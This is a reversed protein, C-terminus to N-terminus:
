PAVSVHLTGDKIEYALGAPDLAKHLLTDLDVDKVEFTVLKNLGPLAEQDYTFKLDNRQAVTKAIAGAKQQQINLSYVRKAGTTAPRTRVTKGQVLRAIATHDAQPGAVELMAGAARLKSSPFKAQLERVWQEADGTVRYSKTLVASDPLPIFRIADGAPSFEFTANFGALVICLQESCSLPPLTIAPWLDHPIQELGVVKLEYDKAIASVIQQPTALIEWSRSKAQFLRKQVEPTFKRVDENRMGAVTSLKATVEPPGIYMCDGVRCVDAQLQVALKKLLMQMSVDQASFDVKQGPDIRRDLWIGVGQVKQLRALAPRLPNESWHVGMTSDLTTTFAASTKFEVAEDPTPQGCLKGPAILQWVVFILCAWPARTALVGKQQQSRQM